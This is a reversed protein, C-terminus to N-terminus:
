LMCVCICASCLEVCMLVNRVYSLRVRMCAHMCVFVYMCLVCVYMCVFVHVRMCVYMRVYCLVSVYGCICVYWVYMGCCRMAYGVYMCVSCM